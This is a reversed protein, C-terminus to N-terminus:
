ESEGEEPTADEIEDHRSNYNQNLIDETDYGRLEGHCIAQYACMKCNMPSISRPFRVNKRLIEYATGVIETKWLKILTEENRYERAEQSWKVGALKPEMEERYLEPDQGNILCFQAYEPWSCRIFARSVSGNKNISPMTAPKNLSKFTLSGVVPMGLKRLAYQYVVNQMNFMEDEKDSLSSVFKWDIQWLGGTRLDRAVLDIYGQIPTNMVCPVAFRLEIMPTDEDLFAVEWNEPGFENLARLYIEEATTRIEEYVDYEDGEMQVQAVRCTEQIADIGAQPDPQGNAKSAWFGAMGIHALKGVTLPRAEIKPSLRERYNYYWQKRCRLFSNIQSISLAKIKDDHQVLYKHKM